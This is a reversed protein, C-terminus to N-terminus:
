QSKRDHIARLLEEIDDDTTATDLSHDEEPDAAIFEGDAEEHKELNVRDPSLSSTEIPPKENQKDASKKTFLDSLLLGLYGCIFYSVMYILVTIWSDAWMGYMLASIAFFLPAILCVYIDSRRQRLKYIVSCVVSTVPFIGIEVIYTAASAKNHGMFLPMLLFIIAEIIIYPLLEKLKKELKDDM